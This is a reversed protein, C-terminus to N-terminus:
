QKKEVDKNDSRTNDKIAVVSSQTAGDHITTSAKENCGGGGGGRCNMVVVAKDAVGTTAESSETNAFVATPPSPVAGFKFDNSFFGLLTKVTPTSNVGSDSSSTGSSLFSSEIRDM